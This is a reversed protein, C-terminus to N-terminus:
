RWGMRERLRTVHATHHLSHWAYLALSRDIPVLGWEPHRFPRAFDSTDLARLLVVWRTQLAELLALSVEVPTERSDPLEAWRAEEYTKVAPAEETLALKFRIYANLHSDPVHHVLQRVTWGGPRYPTDLQEASLGAVAERFRAPLEALTRIADTRAEVSLPTSPPVHPGVPYRLDSGEITPSTVTPDPNSFPFRLAIVPPQRHPSRLCRNVPSADRVLEMTGAHSVGNSPRGVGM